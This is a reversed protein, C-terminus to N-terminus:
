FKSVTTGTRQVRLNYLNGVLQSQNVLDIFNQQKEQQILTMVTPGAGSLYTGIAGAQHGLKRLQKLHPVLAARAQEHFQDHEILESVKTLNNTLIAAVLANGVSSAYVAQKFDLSSPLVKRSATTLLETPPVFAMMVLEPFHVKISTVKLQDFSSIVLDGLIAPAVNDPHREIKTAVQLKQDRTLNLNGLLNAIEIGAIIASSSSGLGRALPIDSKVQLHHPKIQPALNLATKIMLNREDCPIEPGLQHKVRWNDAKELIDVQLYLSVAIGISDFGPGLNASTAPVKIEYKM